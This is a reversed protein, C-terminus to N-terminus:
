YVLNAKVMEPTTNIHQGIQYIIRQNTEGYLGIIEKAEQFSSWIHALAVVKLLIIFNM